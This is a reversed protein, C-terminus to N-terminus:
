EGSQDLHFSLRELSEQLMHVRQGLHSAAAAWEERPVRSLTVLAAIEYALSGLARANSVSSRRASSVAENAVGAVDRAM